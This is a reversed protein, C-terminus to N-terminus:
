QAEGELVAVLNQQLCPGSTAHALARDSEGRHIRAAAEGLRILGAAMVPNAALAGGSPNVRVDDGLDLAKRLVVEQSSFPAHLEATDVPREFAGAREAALRASPSDTLDRVGLSHAEIRHDMGRIWAPRGCLERARDGAALVVAAAGDGVPPCDGTRLPQVVYGGQPRAGRLQAHPNDAAAGRSRAAIEALAPEGTDGADILAQAQLAALAVSDPWLPAVYYPDLQRTLVDRVVGPSSKGYSYVLATDAEGTLLKVWAEYLAWAGDMEVHSESIPPWAGVGDLTMTFSFARGALYDSSGSCTFDIDSAKLGTQALVGHLVPMVMEVESLDDTSRRHDTQAFAVIAVERM